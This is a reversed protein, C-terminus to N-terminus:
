VVSKRDRNHFARIRGDRGRVILVPWNGYMQSVYSGPKPLECEFGAMLWSTGFIAAQDFAYAEAGNYLGQPLCYGERREALLAAIRSLDNM